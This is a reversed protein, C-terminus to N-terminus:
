QSHYIYGLELPFLFDELMEIIEKLSVKWLRLFTDMANIKSLREIEPFPRWHLSLFAWRFHEFVVGIVNPLEIGKYLHINIDATSFLIEEAM